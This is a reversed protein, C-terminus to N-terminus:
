RILNVKKVERFGPADIFILYTGSSAPLGDGANGDWILRSDTAGSYLIAQGAVASALVQDDFLTRVLEGNINYVRVAVQGSTAVTFAISLSQAPPLFTNASLFFENVVPHNNAVTAAQVNMSFGIPSLVSFPSVTYNADYFSGQLTVNVTDASSTAQATQSVLLVVDMVLSEGPTISLPTLTSAGTATVYSFATVSVTSWTGVASVSPSLNIFAFSGAGATNSVSVRLTVLQGIGYPGSLPNGDLRVLSSSLYTALSPGSGISVAASYTIATALPNGSPDAGTASVSFVYPGGSSQMAIFVWRFTATSGATLTLGPGVPVGNADNLVTPTFTLWLPSTNFPLASPSV